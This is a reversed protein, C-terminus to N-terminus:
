IGRGLPNFIIYFPLTGNLNEFTKKILVENSIFLLQQFCINKTWVAHMVDVTFPYVDIYM